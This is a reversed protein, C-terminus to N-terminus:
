ANINVYSYPQPFHMSYMEYMGDNDIGCCTNDVGVNDVGLNYDIGCGGSMNSISDGSIYYWAVGLVVLFVIIFIWGKEM